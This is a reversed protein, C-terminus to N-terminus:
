SFKIYEIVLRAAGATYAATDYDIGVYVPATGVTATGTILTGDCRVVEGIADIATLAVAADIGTAAVATGNALYTGINLAAAGGSTFATTVVLTASLIVSGAPIQPALPDIQAAGFTLPVATGVIDIVISQRSARTTAGEGGITGQDRDTLIYLGDANTYSM